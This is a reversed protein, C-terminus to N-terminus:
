LYAGGQLASVNWLFAIKRMSSCYPSRSALFSSCLEARLAFARAVGPQGALAGYLCMVCTLGKKKVDSSFEFLFPTKIGEEEKITTFQCIWGRTNITQKQFLPWRCNKIISMGERDPILSSSRSSAVTQMFTQSLTPRKKLFVNIYRTRDQFPKWFDLLPLVIQTSGCQRHYKLPTGRGPHAPGEEPIVRIGSHM